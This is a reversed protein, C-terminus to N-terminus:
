NSNSSCLSWGFRVTATAPRILTMKVDPISSNEAFWGHLWTYIDNQGLSQLKLFSTSLDPLSSEIFHTKEALLIAQEPNQDDSRPFTGLLTV